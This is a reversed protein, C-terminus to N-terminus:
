RTKVLQWPTGCTGRCPSSSALFAAVSTALVASDVPVFIRRADYMSGSCARTYNNKRESTAISPATDYTYTLTQSKKTVPHKKKPTLHIWYVFCWPDLCRQSSLVNKLELLSSHRKSSTHLYLHLTLSHSTLGFTLMSDDKKVMSKLPQGATQDM